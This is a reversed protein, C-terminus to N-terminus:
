SWDKQATSAVKRRLIMAIDVAGDAARLVSRPELEMAEGAALREALTFATSREDPSVFALQEIFTPEADKEPECSASLWEGPDRGGAHGPRAPRPPEPL